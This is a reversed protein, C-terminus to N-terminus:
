LAGSEVIRVVRSSDATQRLMESATLESVPHRMQPAIECLPALVFRREALREHPVILDARRIVSDGYFLIDIDIPRPGKAIGPRRGAAREIVKCVHLLRLPLLETAAEAVCNIFWPQPKFDVPETKYFSSIRKVEVGAHALSEIARKVRNLRDGQNSGFSLYVQKM